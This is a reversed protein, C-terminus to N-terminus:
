PRCVKCPRYGAERAEDVSSFWIENESHIRQAWECNPRHYKDSNISGVYQPNSVPTFTERSQTTCGSLILFFLLLIPIIKIKM